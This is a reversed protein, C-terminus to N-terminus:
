VTSNMIKDIFEKPLRINYKKIHYVLTDPWRYEGDTVVKFCGAITEGTICDKVYKPCFIRSSFRNLYSIVASRDYDVNDALHQTISGNNHATLEMESLFGIDIM